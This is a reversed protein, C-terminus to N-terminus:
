PYNLDKVVQTTMTKTMMEVLLVLLCPLMNRPMDTKTTASDDHEWIEDIVKTLLANMMDDRMERVGRGLNLPSIVLSKSKMFRVALFVKKNYTMLKILESM